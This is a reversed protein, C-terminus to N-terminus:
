KMNGMQYTDGRDDPDYPVVNSSLDSEYLRRLYHSLWVAFVLTPIFFLVCWGIALWFGNIGDVADECAEYYLNSYTAYLPQCRGIENELNNVAWNAFDTAFAVVNNFVELSRNVLLRGTGDTNLQALVVDANDLVEFVRDNLEVATESLMMIQQELLQTCNRIETITTQNIRIIEDIIDQTDDALATQGGIVLGDRVTVLTSITSDVALTSIQSTIQTIYTTYNITQLGANAFEALSDRTEQTLVQNLVFSIDTDVERFLDDLDPLQHTINTLEELNFSPRMSLRAVDYVARNAKCGNLMDAVTLRISADDLIFCGLLSGGWLENNDVLMEFLEYSPIDDNPPDDSISYCVKIMNAGLFFTISALFLLVFAFIFMLTVGFYLITIGGYHSLQTRDPPETHRRFGIAGLVLGVILILIVILTLSCILISIVYRPTDYEDLEDQIDSSQSRIDGIFGQENIIMRLEREVDDAINRITDRFENAQELIMRSRDQIQDRIDCPIAYFTANAEIAEQALNGVQELQNLVSSVDEVLTYDVVDYSQTPIPDCLSGLSANRCQMDLTVLSATLNNLEDQLRITLNLLKVVTSNVVRLADISNNLDVALELSSNILPAVSDGFVDLIIDGITIHSNNIQCQVFTNIEDYRDITANAQMQTDDIFNLSSNLATNVTNEFNQVSDNLKENSVFAFVVGIFLLCICLVLMIYLIFCRLDNNERHEQKLDGGCNGCFRCCCFCCGVIAFILAFVPGLCTVVLIPAWWEGFDELVDRFEFDGSGTHVLSHQCGSTAIPNDLSSNLVPLIVDYPLSGSRVSDVFANALNAWGKLGDSNDNVEIHVLRAAPLPAFIISGNDALSFNLMEQLMEAVERQISDCMQPVSSFGGLSIDCTNNDNQALVVGLSCLALLYLWLARM